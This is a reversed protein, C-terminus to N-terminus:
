KFNNLKYLFCVCMFLGFLCLLILLIAVKFPIPKKIEEKIKNIYIKIKLFNIFSYIILWLVMPLVLIILCKLILQLNEFKEM